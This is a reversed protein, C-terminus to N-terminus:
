KMVEIIARPKKGRLNLLSSDLELKAVDGVKVGSPNEFSYIGPKVSARIDYNVKVSTKEAVGIVRGTTYDRGYRKKFGYSVLGISVISFLFIHIFPFTFNVMPKWTYLAILLISIGLYSLFFDRYAEFDSPFNERVDKFVTVLSAGGSILLIMFTAKAGVWGFIYAVSVV